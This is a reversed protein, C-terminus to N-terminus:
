RSWAFPLGLSIYILLLINNIELKFIDHVSPELSLNERERERKQFPLDAVALLYCLSLPVLILGRRLVTLDM